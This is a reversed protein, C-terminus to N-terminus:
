ELSSTLASEVVGNLASLPLHGSGVLSARVLAVHHLQDTDSPSFVSAILPDRRDDPVERVCDCLTWALDEQM